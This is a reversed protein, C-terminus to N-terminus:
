ESELVETIVALAAAVALLETHRYPGIGRGYNQDGVRISPWEAFWQGTKEQTTKLRFQWNHALYKERESM